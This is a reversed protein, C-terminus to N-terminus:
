ATLERAATAVVSVLFKAPVYQRDILGEYELTELLRECVGIGWGTEAHLERASFPRYEAAALRGMIWTRKQGVSLGRIKTM